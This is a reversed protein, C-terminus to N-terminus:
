CLITQYDIKRTSGISATKKQKKEYTAIKCRIKLSIKMKFAKVGVHIPTHTDTHIGCHNQQSYELYNKEKEM